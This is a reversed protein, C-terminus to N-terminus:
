VVKSGLIDIILRSNAIFPAVQICVYNQEKGNYFFDKVTVNSFVLKNRNTVRSINEIQPSVIQMEKPGKLM